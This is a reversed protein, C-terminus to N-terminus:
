DKLMHSVYRGQRTKIYLFQVDNNLEQLKFLQENSLHPSRLTFHFHKHALFVKSMFLKEYSEYPVFDSNDPSDFIYDTFDFSMLHYFNDSDALHEIFNQHDYGAQLTLQRLPHKGIDFFSKDPASPVALYELEPMKAILKAIMGNEDLEGGSDIITQNHDGLDTLKIKLNKLNPFIVSSNTIRSFDWGNTGNAGEDPGDFTLSLVKEANKPECLLDLLSCFPYNYDYGLEKAKIEPKQDHGSGYFSIDFFDGAPFYYLKPSYRSHYELKDKTEFEATEYYYIDKQLQVFQENM